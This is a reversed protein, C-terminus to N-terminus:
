KDIMFWIMAFENPTMADYKSDGEIKEFESISIKQVEATVESNLLEKIAETDKDPDLKDIERNYVAAIDSLTKYNLALAYSVKVPLKKKQLNACNNLFQVMDINKFGM